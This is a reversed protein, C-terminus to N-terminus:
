DDARDFLGPPCPRGRRGTRRVGSKIRPFTSPRSFAPAPPEQRGFSRIPLFLGRVHVAAQRGTIGEPELVQAGPMHNPHPAPYAPMTTFDSRRRQRPAPRTVGAQDVEFPPQAAPFAPSPGPTAQPPIAAAPNFGPHPGSNYDRVANELDRATAQRILLTLLPFQM